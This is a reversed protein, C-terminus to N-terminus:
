VMYNRIGSNHQVVLQRLIYYHVDSLKFVKAYKHDSPSNQRWRHKFPGLSRKTTMYM